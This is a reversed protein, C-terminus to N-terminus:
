QLITPKEVIHTQPCTLYSCISVKSTPLMVCQIFPQQKVQKYGLQTEIRLRLPAGHRVTDDRTQFRM